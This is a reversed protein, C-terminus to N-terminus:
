GSNAPGANARKGARGIQVRWMGRSIGVAIDAAAAASPIQQAWILEEDCSLGCGVAFSCHNPITKPGRGGLGGILYVRM